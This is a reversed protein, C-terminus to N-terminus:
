RSTIKVPKGMTTKIFVNKIQQENFQKLLAELIAMVNDAIANADLAESGVICHVCPLFKGKPKLTVTRRTSEVFSRLDANPPIPKPLAGRTALVQGLQKGVVAMLQPAALTAYKVLEKQKKKDAAYDAIEAGSIVLEAGAKKADSALQGDAFVAVKVQKPATPMVVSINFRNEAKKFDVDNFNIALDVSQTFKRKGKGEALAKQVADLVTKKDLAM